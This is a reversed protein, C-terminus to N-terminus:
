NPIPQTQKTLVLSAKGNVDYFELMDGDKQAVSGARGLVRLYNGEWNGVNVTPGGSVTPLVECAKRTQNIKIVKFGRHGVQKFHANYKNCGGLGMMTHQGVNLTLTLEKPVNNGYISKVLWSTGLLSPGGSNLPCALTSAPSSATVAPTPTPTPATTSEITQVNIPEQEVSLAAASLSFCSIALLFMLSHKNKM